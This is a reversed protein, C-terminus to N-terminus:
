TVKLRVIKTEALVKALLAVLVNEISFVGKPVALRVQCFSFSRWIQGVM